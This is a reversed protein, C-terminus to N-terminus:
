FPSSIALPLPTTKYASTTGAASVAMSIAAVSVNDPAEAIVMVDYDGFSFFFHHIKGGIAAALKGAEVSRDQPNAVLARIQDEKYSIQLMYFAM